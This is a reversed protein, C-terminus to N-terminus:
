PLPFGKILFCVDNRAPKTKRFVTFPSVFNIRYSEATFSSRLKDFQIKKRRKFSPLNNLLQQIFKLVIEHNSVLKLFLFFSTERSCGKLTWIPAPTPWCKIKWKERRQWNRFKIELRYCTQHNMQPKKQLFHLPHDM